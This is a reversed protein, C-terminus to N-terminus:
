ETIRRVCAGLEAPADKEVIHRKGEVVEHYGGKVLRSKDVRVVMLVDVGERVSVRATWNDFARMSRFGANRLLEKDMLSWEDQTPHHVGDRSQSLAQAIAEGFVSDEAEEGVTVCSSELLGLGDTTYNKVYVFATRGRMLIVAERMQM